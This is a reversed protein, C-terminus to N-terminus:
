DIIQVTEKGQKNRSSKFEVIFHFSSGIGPSSEFWIKGNMLEVMKKVISLGLGSGSYKRTLSGDVQAFSEFVMFHKETPIGIGTDSVIFHVLIKKGPQQNQSIINDIFVKIKISGKHTFKVANSLLNVMVQQIKRGDGLLKEPIADDIELELKIGDRKTQTRYPLILENLRASLDFEKEEYKEKHDEIKSFDLLNNLLELLTQSSQKVMELYELQEENLSTDLILDTLGM